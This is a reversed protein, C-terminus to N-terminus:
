RAGIGAEEELEPEPRRPRGGLRAALYYTGLFLAPLLFSMLFMLAGTNLSLARGIVSSLGLVPAYWSFFLFVFVLGIIPLVWAMLGFAPYLSFLVAGIAVERRRGMGAWAAVGCWLALFMASVAAAVPMSVRADWMRGLHTARLDRMDAGILALCLYGAVTFLFLWWMVKMFKM